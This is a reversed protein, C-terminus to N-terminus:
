YPFNAPDCCYVFGNKADNPLSLPCSVTRCIDLVPPREREFTSNFVLFVYIAKGASNRVLKYMWQPVPVKNGSLYACCARGSEDCLTLVDIGGTKIRFPSMQPVQDRLWREIKEWNGDNITKFQPVINLYRFTSSMQDVFLFDASAVLHGRNIVLERSDPLYTQSRGFICLFANYINNKMYGAADAPTVIEDTTFEVFPRKAVVCLTFYPNICYSNIDQFCRKCFTKHYVDSQSYLVRSTAGDFCSRFLELHRGDIGYGVSYMQAPCDRDSVRIATTKMPNSCWMPLPVSFSGSELCETEVVDAVTCVMHLKLGTAVTETRLLHLTRGADCYTFIRNTNEVMNRTITCDGM